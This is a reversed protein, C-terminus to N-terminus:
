IIKQYILDIKDKAKVNVSKWSKRELRFNKKSDFDKKISKKLVDSIVGWLDSNLFAFKMNRVWEIYNFSEILKVFTWVFEKQEKM